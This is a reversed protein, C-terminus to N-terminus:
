SPHQAVGPQLLSCFCQVSDPKQIQQFDLQVKELVPKLPLPRQLKLFTVECLHLRKGYEMKGHPSRSIIEVAGWSGGGLEWPCCPLKIRLQCFLIQEQLTLPLNSFCLMLTSVPRPTGKGKMAPSYFLVMYAVFGPMRVLIEGM